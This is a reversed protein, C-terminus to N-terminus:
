NDVIIKKMYNILAMINMLISFYAFFIMFGKLNCLQTNKALGCLGCDDVM